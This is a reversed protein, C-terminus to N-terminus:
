HEISARSLVAIDGCTKALHLLYEVLKINFILAYIQALFIDSSANGATSAAIGALANEIVDNILDGFLEFLSVAKNDARGNVVATGVSSQNGSQLSDKVARMKILAHLDTRAHDACSPGATCCSEIFEILEKRYGIHRNGCALVPVIDM